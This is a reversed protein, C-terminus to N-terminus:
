STATAVQHSVAGQTQRAETLDPLSPERLSRMTVIWERGSVQVSHSSEYSSKAVQADSKALLSESAPMRAEYVDFALALPSGAVTQLLRESELPSFVFGLLARRRADVTTLSATVRYVPFFAVLNGRWAGESVESHTLKTSAQPEGTDRARAMAHELTPDAWLDFGISETTRADRPELFITPCTIARTTAPWVRLRVGELGITRVLSRLDGRPVCPAFGIGQMGPYRERLHLAAVFRRFDAGNLENNSSLLVAAARVVEFYTNLGFEIQRRTLEADRVFAARDQAEGTEAATRALYLSAAVSLSCALVLLGYPVSRRLLLRRLAATPKDKRM